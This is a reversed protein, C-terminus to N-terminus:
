FTLDLVLRSVTYLASNLKWVPYPDQIKPSNIQRCVPNQVEVECKLGKQCALYLNALFYVSRFAAYVTTRKSM